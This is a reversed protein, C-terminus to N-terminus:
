EVWFYIMQLNKNLHSNFHQARQLRKIKYTAHKVHKLKIETGASIESHQTNDLVSFAAQAARM